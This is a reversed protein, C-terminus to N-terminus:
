LIAPILAPGGLAKSFAKPPRARMGATRHLPPPVPPATGEDPLPTNAGARDGLM